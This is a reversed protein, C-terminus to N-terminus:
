TSNCVVWKEVRLKEGLYQASPQIVKQYYQAKDTLALRVRDLIAKTQLAWQDDNPKYVECVHHWDKFAFYLVM